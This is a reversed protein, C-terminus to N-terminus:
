LSSIPDACYKLEAANVASNLTGEYLASTMTWHHHAVILHFESFFFAFGSFQLQLRGRAHAASTSLWHKSSTM